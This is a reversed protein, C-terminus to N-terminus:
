STRWWLAPCPDSVCEEVLKWNSEIFFIAIPGSNLDAILSRKGLLSSTILFSKVRCSEAQSDIKPDAM